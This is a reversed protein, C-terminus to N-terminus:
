SGAEVGFYSFDGSVASSAAATQANAAMENDGNVYATTAEAAGFCGAAIQTNIRKVKAQQDLILAELASYVVGSSGGGAYVNDLVGVIGDLQTALTTAETEVSILVGQVGEADISWQTM